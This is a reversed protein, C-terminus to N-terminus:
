MERAMPSNYFIPIEHLDSNREWYDELILLIEQARGLAFVPLLCRLLPEALQFVLIRKGRVGRLSDRDLRKGGQRVIQHVSNTFRQERQEKKLPFSMSFCGKPLELLWPFAWLSHWLSHMAISGIPRVELCRFRDRPEHNMVGYTSEVILVHIRVNPIEAQPLHRDEERSYDGTYLM